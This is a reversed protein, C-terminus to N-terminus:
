WLELKLHSMPSVTRGLQLTAKLIVKGKIHHLVKKSQMCTLTPTRSSRAAEVPNMTPKAKFLNQFYTQM